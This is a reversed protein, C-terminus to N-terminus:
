DLQQRLPFTLPAPSNTDRPYPNPLGMPPNPLVWLLSPDGFSDRPLQPGM